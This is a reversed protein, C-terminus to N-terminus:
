LSGLSGAAAVNAGMKKFQSISDNLSNFVEDVNMIPRWGIFHVFMTEHGLGFPWIKPELLQLQRGPM